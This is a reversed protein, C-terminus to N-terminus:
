CTIQEVRYIYSTHDILKVFFFLPVQITIKKSLESYRFRRQLSREESRIDARNTVALFNELCLRLNLEDSDTKSGKLAILLFSNQIYLLSKLFKRTKLKM